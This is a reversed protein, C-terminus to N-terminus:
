QRFLSCHHHPAGMTWQSSTADGNEMGSRGYLLGGVSLHRGLTNDTFRCLGGEGGLKRGRFMTNMYPLCEAERTCQIANYDRSYLKAKATTFVHRYDMAATYLAVCSNSQGDSSLATWFFCYKCSKCIGHVFQASGSFVASQWGSNFRVLLIPFLSPLTQKCQNNEM